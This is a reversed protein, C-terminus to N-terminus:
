YSNCSLHWCNKCYLNLFFNMNWQLGDSIESLFVNFSIIGSIFVVFELIMSHHKILSFLYNRHWPWTQIFSKSTTTSESSNSSTSNRGHKGLRSRRGGSEDGPDFDLAPTRKENGSSEYLLGVKPLLPISGEDEPCPEITDIFPRQVNAGFFMNNKRVPKPKRIGEEIRLGLDRPGDNDHHPVSDPSRRQRPTAAVSDGGHKSSSANSGSTGTGTSAYGSTEGGSHPHNLGGNHLNGGECNDTGGDTDEAKEEVVVSSVSLNLADLTTHNHLVSNGGITTDSLSCTIPPVAMNGSMSRKRGNPAGSFLSAVLGGVTNAAGGSSAVSSQNQSSASSMSSQRSNCAPPLAAANSLSLQRQPHLSLRRTLSATTPVPRISSRVNAPDLALNNGTGQVVSSQPSELSPTVITPNHKFTTVIQSATPRRSPTWNWCQLLLGEVLPHINPPPTLTNRGKVFELVQGNNMNQFPFTGFTIVEYLVVGFSWIDSMSTYVGEILSEPSMWRVPLYARRSFRYYNTEYVLRTMGFDGIKVTKNVNVLCNRCALDRHVYKNDALFQLGSAVDRVM